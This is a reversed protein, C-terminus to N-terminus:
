KVFQWKRRGEGFWGVWGVWEDMGWERGEAKRGM